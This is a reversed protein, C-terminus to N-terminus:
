PMKIEYFDCKEVLKFGVCLLLGTSASTPTDLITIINPTDHLTIEKNFVFNHFLYLFWCITNM